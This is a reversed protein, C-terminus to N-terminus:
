RRDTPELAFTIAEVGALTDRRTYQTLTLQYDGAQSFYAGQQLPIDLTCGDGSCDGLWAGTNEAIQLSIVETRQEGGPFATTLRVYINQFPLAESHEVILHLNYVQASDEISFRYHLSDAFAWGAPPLSHTERYSYDPGCAALLLGAALAFLYLFSPRHM